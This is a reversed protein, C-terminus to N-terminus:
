EKSIKIRLTVTAKDGDPVNAVYDDLMFFGRRGLKDKFAFVRGVAVDTERDTVDSSGYLSPELNHKSFLSDIDAANDIDGFIAETINNYQEANTLRSDTISSFQSVYGTRTSMNKCNEFFRCTNCGGGHYNYAFDVKSSNAEAESKTYVLGDYLNIFCKNTSSQSGDPAIISEVSISHEVIEPPAPPPVVDGDDKKCGQFLVGALAVLLLITPKM